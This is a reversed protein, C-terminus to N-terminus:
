AELVEASRSRRKGTREGSGKRRDWETILRKGPWELKEHITLFKKEWLSSSVSRDLGRRRRKGRLLGKRKSQLKRGRPCKGHLKSKRVGM